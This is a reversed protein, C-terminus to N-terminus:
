FLSIHLLVDSVGNLYSLAAQPFISVSIWRTFSSSSGEVSWPFSVFMIRLCVGHAAPFAFANQFLSRARILFLSRSITFSPAFPLSSTTALLFKLFAMKAAFSVALSFVRSSSVSGFHKLVTFIFVVFCGMGATCLGSPARAASCLWMAFFSWSERCLLSCRLSVGAVSFGALACTSSPSIWFASLAEQLPAAVPGSWIGVLNNLNSQFSLGSRRRFVMFRTYLSPM